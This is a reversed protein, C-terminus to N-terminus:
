GLALEAIRHGPVVLPHHSTVLAIGGHALHQGLCGHGWERGAVDLNSFPEDLIWLSASSLLARGIAVRRRQGASLVRVPLDGVGALGLEQLCTRVDPGAPRESHPNLACSFQLNEIPSLDNKLGDRHGLYALEARYQVTNRSIPQGRWSVHGTEPRTLGALVRLLSSKGIGNRGTIHVASGSEARVSLGTFLCRDGRWLELDTAELV